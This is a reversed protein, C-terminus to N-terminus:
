PTLELESTGGGLALDPDGRSGQEPSLPIPSPHRRSACLVFEGRCRNSGDVTLSLLTELDLAPSPGSSGGSLLLMAAGATSSWQFEVAM